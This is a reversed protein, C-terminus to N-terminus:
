VYEENDDENDNGIYRIKTYFGKVGGYGAVRMQSDYAYRKRKFETRVKSPNKYKINDNHDTKVFEDGTHNYLYQLMEAKSITHEDNAEEFNKEIFETMADGETNQEQFLERMGEFQLKWENVDSEYYKKTYPAFFKFLAIKMRHEKFQKSLGPIKMYIHEDDNCEDPNSTFRSNAELQHARRLVGNDVKVIPIENANCEFKFSIPIETLEMYLPKVCMTDSTLSKVKLGIEEIEEVYCMRYSTNLLSSLTKDDKAKDIVATKDLAKVYCPFAFRFVDQITSKGNDAGAGLFLFFMQADVEGTLCYGKWAYFAEREKKNPFITQFMRDIIAFEKSYNGEEEPYNYNLCGKETLYMERTRKTLKSTKLNYAGNDFHFLNNNIPMLNFKVDARLSLDYLLLNVINKITGGLWGGTSNYQKLHSIYKKKCTIKFTNEEGNIEDKMLKISANMEKEWYDREETMLLNHIVSHGIGSKPDQRWLCKHEEFYCLQAKEREYDTNIIFNNKHNKIFREQVMKDSFNLFNEWDFPPVQKKCFHTEFCNLHSHIIPNYSDWNTRVWEDTSFNAGVEKCKALIIQYVKECKSKAFSLIIPVCTTYEALLTPDYNNLNEVIIELPYNSTETSLSVPLPTIDQTKAEGTSSITVKKVKGKSKIVMSLEEIVWDPAKMSGEPNHIEDDIFGWEWLGDLWEVGPKWENTKKNWIKGYKIPLNYKKRHGLKTEPLDRRDFPIHAGYDKTTSKKYPHTLLLERFEPCDECDIDIMGLYKTDVALGEWKYKNGNFYIKWRADCYEEILDFDFDNTRVSLYQKGGSRELLFNGLEEGYLKIIKKKTKYDDGEPKKKMKFKGDSLTEETPTIKLRFPFCLINKKKLWKVYKMTAM